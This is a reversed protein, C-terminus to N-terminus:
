PRSARIAGITAQLALPPSSSARALDELTPETTGGARTSRNTRIVLIRQSPTPGEDSVLACYGLTGPRDLIAGIVLYENPAVTVECALEPYVKAPRDVKIAWHSQDPEPAFPLVQEGTEVKPTLKLRTKGDATLVPLVDLGFRARDVRIEHTERGLHLDYDCHPLVPGLHRGYSKGSQAMQRRADLCWRESTLLTQLDAPTMGVIQGVRFGNAELAAKKELDVIFEDTHASLEKNVYPDGLRRELLAFDLIVAGDALPPRLRTTWTSADRDPDTALCGALTVLLPVLAWARRLPVADKGFSGGQRPNRM